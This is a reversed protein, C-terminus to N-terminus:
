AGDNREVMALFQAVQGRGYLPQRYQWSKKFPRGPNFGAQRLLRRITALETKSNAVLRVEDGKKYRRHGEAKLRRANQWRVYGNRHFFQALQKEPRGTAKTRPM